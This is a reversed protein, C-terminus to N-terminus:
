SIFLISLLRSWTHTDHVYLRDFIAVGVSLVWEKTNYDQYPGYIPIKSYNLVQNQCLPHELPNYNRKSVVVQQQQQQQQSTPVCHSIEEITSFPNNTYPNIHENAWECGVSTYTDNYAIISAPIQLISGAGSNHYQISISLSEPISEYLPKLFVGIDASKMGLYKTTPVPRIVGGTTLNSNAITCNPYYKKSSSISRISLTPDCNGPFTYMPSKMSVSKIPISDEDDTLMIAQHYEADHNNSNNHSNNVDHHHLHHNKMFYITREIGFCEIFEELTEHTEFNWDNPLLKSNLPYVNRKSDVDYFPVHRDTIFDDFTSTTTSMTNNNDINTTTHDYYNTISGNYGVIRDRVLESLLTSTGRYFRLKETLVFAAHKNIVHLKSSVQYTLGIRAIDKVLNGSHMVLIIGFIVVIGISVFAISGYSEILQRRLTYTSKLCCKTILRRLLKFVKM